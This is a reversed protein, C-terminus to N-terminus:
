LNAGLEFPRFANVHGDRRVCKDGLYWETVTVRSNGDEEITTVVQLEDREIMGETTLVKM